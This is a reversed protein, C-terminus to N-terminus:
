ENRNTVERIVKLLSNGEMNKRDNIVAAVAHGLDTLGWQAHKRGNITVQGVKEVLGLRTLENRRTRVGSASVHHQTCLYAYVDSDPAGPAISQLGLYYMIASITCTITYDKVSNAAEVSEVPDTTRARPKGVGSCDVQSDM